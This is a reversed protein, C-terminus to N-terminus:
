LSIARPLGMRVYRVSREPVVPLTCGGPYHRTSLIRGDSDVCAFEGEDCVPTGPRYYHPSEHHLM